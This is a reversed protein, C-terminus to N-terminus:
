PKLGKKSAAIEQDRLTRQVEEYEDLWTPIQNNAAREANRKIWRDFPVVASTTGGEVLRGDSTWRPDKPPYEAVRTGRLELQAEDPNFVDRTALWDEYNWPMEDEYASHSPTRNPNLDVLGPYGAVAAPRKSPMHHQWSLNSYMNGDYEVWRGRLTVDARGPGSSRMVATSWDVDDLVGEWKEAVYAAVATDSLQSKRNTAWDPIFDAYDSWIGNHILVAPATGTLAKSVLARPGLPFPHTLHMAKGGHTAWRFHVLAPRPVRKLIKHVQVWNLGKKYRIRDGEIYAVGAGHPNDREMGILEDKSPGEDSEILAAVCM